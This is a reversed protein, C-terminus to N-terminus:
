GADTIPEDRALEIGRGVTETVIALFSALDIPKRLVHSAGFREAADLFQADDEASVIVFPARAGALALCEVGSLHPMRQDTVVLRFFGPEAGQLLELLERGDHAETVVFSAQHLCTVLMARCDPDDEAVIVRPKKVIQSVPKM